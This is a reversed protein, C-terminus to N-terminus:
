NKRKAGGSVAEMYATVVTAAVMPMDLFMDLGSPSFPVPQKEDDVVGEWGVVIERAVGIDSVGDADVM